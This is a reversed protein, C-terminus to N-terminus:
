LFTNECGIIKQYNDKVTQKSFVPFLSDLKSLKGMREVREVQTLAREADLLTLDLKDKEMFLENLKKAQESALLFKFISQTTEDRYDKFKNKYANKIGPYKKQLAEIMGFQIMKIRNKLTRFDKKIGHFIKQKEFKLKRLASADLAIVGPLKNNEIIVKQIDTFVSSKSRKDRPLWRLYWPEWQELYYESTSRSLDNSYANGLTYLHAERLSVKGDNNLDPNYALPEGLRTKGDLAAFMYTTYDRYQGVTLSSSCGEAERTASEAMFGCRKGKLELTDGAAGQHILRSFGGSFCQTLIFRTPVSDPINGLLKEFEYVTLPKETWLRFNNLGYDTSNGWGHGNYLILATDNDTLKAFDKKLSPLLNDPHTSGSLANITHNTFFTPFVDPGGFIMDFLYQRDKMDRDKYNIVDPEPDDGDTYFIKLISNASRNSIVEGAWKVNREIQVQSNYKTPGGGIIWSYNEASVASIWSVVALSLILIKLKM